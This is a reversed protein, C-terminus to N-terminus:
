KELKTYYFKSNEDIKYKDMFGGNVEMVYMAVGKSRLSKKSNPTTNKYFSDITGNERIYIIDLSFMTNKMWFSRIEENEFVFLMGERQGMNPRDMLGKSVEPPSDAIEIDLVVQNAEDGVVFWAVGHKEFTSTKIEKKTKKISIKGTNHTPLPKYVMPVVKVLIFGVLAIALFIVGTRDKKM